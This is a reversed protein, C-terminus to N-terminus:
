ASLACPRALGLARAAETWVSTGPLSYVDDFDVAGNLELVTHGGDVPLLDVGVLDAGIAAAAALALDRAGPGPMATRRTGGLATNTRWEGPRARREVAGVLRGGAVIARLDYGAPSVLEQVLAGHRRFWPRTWATRLWGDLEAPTRCLAVDRGWSGFRPKVVLPPCMVPRGGLPGLHETRPQPLGARRLAAATRLKDHAALLAAPPNLLRIGARELGDLEEFGPEIGDLTELVDLRVLAVDGRRLRRRAEGVSATFADIGLARWAAALPGNTDLRIGIVAVRPTPM